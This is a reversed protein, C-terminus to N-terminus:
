TRKKDELPSKADGFVGALYALRNVFLFGTISINGWTLLNWGAVDFTAEAGMALYTVYIHGFDAVALCFLYNRLVKPETTTYCIGVGLLFLLGYLNALQYALAISSPHIADSILDPNPAQDLIFWNLDIIPLAWGAILSIPEIVGFLLHPWTPFITSVM